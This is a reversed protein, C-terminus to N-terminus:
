VIPVNRANVGRNNKANAALLLLLFLNLEPITSRHSLGVPRTAVLCDVFVFLPRNMFKLRQWGYVRNAKKKPTADSNQPASSLACVSRAVRSPVTVSGLPPVMLPAFTVTVATSVPM